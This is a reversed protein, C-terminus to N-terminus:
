TRDSMAPACAAIAAAANSVEPMEQGTLLARFRSLGRGDLHTEILGRLHTDLYRRYDQESMEDLLTRVLAQLQAYGHAVLLPERGYLTDLWRAGPEYWIGRKGAGLAEASVSSFCYTVTLDSAAIVATADDQNALFRVRPHARLTAWVQLLERGVAPVSWQQRPGEDVYYAEDKSPKILMLLDERETVLRLIDRYWQIAEIFTSPSNPAEVFSTEFWSLVNRGTALEGFWQRRLADRGMTREMVLIQESWINGVNHYWRIQQRHWRHYDILQACPSVFHDMNDYAWFRVRGGFDSGGAFPQDERYLFGGGNSYAFWWSQAGYRRLLVNRWRPILGYQNTYVYRCSPALRELLNTDRVVTWLGSAAADHLWDPASLRWLGAACLLVARGLPLTRPPCWLIGRWGSYASRRIMQYGEARAADVWPGNAFGGVLFATNQRTLDRHDLLFDFRRGGSTTAQFKTEIAYVYQYPLPEDGRRQRGVMRAVGALFLYLGSGVYRKAQRSVKDCERAAAGWRRAWWPMRVGACAPLWEQCWPFLLRDWVQFAEPIVTAAAGPAETSVWRELWLRMFFYRCLHQVLAYKFIPEAEERGLLCAAQRVLPHEAYRPYLWEAADMALGEARSAPHFYIREVRGDLILRRLWKMFKLRYTFDFVLVRYGRALYWAVLPRHFLTINEFFVCPRSM